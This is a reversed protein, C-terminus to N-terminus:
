PAFRGRRGSRDDRSPGDLRCPSPGRQRTAAPVAARRAIPRVLRAPALGGRSTTGSFRRDASNALGDGRPGLVESPTSQIGTRYSPHLSTIAQGCNIYTINYCDSITKESVSDAVAAVMDPNGRLVEVGERPKGAADREGLLYDAAKGASGTGHALFKIHM